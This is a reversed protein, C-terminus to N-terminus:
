DARTEDNGAVEKVSWGCKCERYFTDDDIILKGQGGGIHTNGCKPCKGYKNMLEISKEINM